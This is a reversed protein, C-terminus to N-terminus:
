PRSFPCVLIHKGVYRSTFIQTTELELSNCIFSRLTYKRTKTCSQSTYSEITRLTTEWLPVELHLLVAEFPLFFSSLLNMCKAPERFLLLHDVCGDVGSIGQRIVGLRSRLSSLVLTRSAEGSTRQILISVHAHAHLYISM